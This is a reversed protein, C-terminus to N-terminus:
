DELINSLQEKGQFEVELIYPVDNEQEYNMRAPVKCWNLSNVNPLNVM